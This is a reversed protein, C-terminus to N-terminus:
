RFNSVYHNCKLCYESGIEYETLCHECVPKSKETIGEDKKNEEYTWGCQFCSSKNEPIEEKCNLCNIAKIM